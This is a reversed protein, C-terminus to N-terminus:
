PGSSKGDQTFTYYTPGNVDPPYAAVLGSRTYLTILSHDGELSWVPSTTNSVPPQALSYDRVWLIIKDYGAASGVVQGSPGFLIDVPASRPIYSEGATPQTPDPNQDVGLDIAVDQPLRLTDEGLVRPARIIRYQWPQYTAATVTQAPASALTLVTASNVATIKHVLSGGKIELYDGPQVAWLTPDAIGFGGFFDIGTFSVQNAAIQSITGGYFDEPQQIFQLETVLGPNNPNALLRIGTPTQDRLARQKAINLWGQLQVAGDTARQRQSLTPLFLIAITALVIILSIVVILEVLTFGPRRGACHRDPAKM